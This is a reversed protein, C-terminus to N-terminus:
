IAEELSAFEMAMEGPFSQYRYGHGALWEPQNPWVIVVMGSAACVREMEALGRDGGRSAEPTLASCAIVLDASQDAVPLADFFGDTVRVSSAPAQRQAVAFSSVDTATNLKRTLLERMPAAPEIAILTHCRKVLELTLRGTGAAVEVIRDVHRPLWDLIGPHLREATVLRDYLAPELRYLLEWAVAPHRRPDADVDIQLRRREEDTLVVLDDRSYRQLLPNAGATGEILPPASPGTRRLSM